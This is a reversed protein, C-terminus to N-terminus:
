PLTSAPTGGGGARGRWAALRPRLRAAWTAYTWAALLLAYPDYPTRLRITGFFVAATLISTVLQWAVLARLPDRRLRALAVAMGWLSPLWVFIQVLRRYFEIPPYFRRAGREVEPWQTSVFWLLAVNTLSYRLQEGPGTARYCRERIERHIEPDGIYGVFKVSEEGLAPRLALPHEPPFLRALARFGPLSVRRGDRTSGRADSRALAAADPFAQTVINHCRGATLNMNANEAVGDWRGTYHHFRWLSFSLTAILAGAIVLIHRARVKPLERRALAWTVLALVFFIAAQPRIAFAASCALACALAGRGEQALRVLLLTAALQTTLFPIESLFYGAQSLHPHWLLAVVGVVEPLPGRRTLRCALLYTLPVAAAGLLANLVAVSALNRPGFIRLPLAYLTHTGWAQWALPRRGPVMGHEALERARAIYRAMDSFLYDWPPHIWLVWVLRTALALGLLLLLIRRNPLRHGEAVPLRPVSAPPPASPAAPSAAPLSGDSM